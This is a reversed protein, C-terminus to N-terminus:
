EAFTDDPDCAWNLRSELEAIINNMAEAVASSTPPDFMMRVKMYIYTKVGEIDGRDSFDAWTATKDSITFPIKPGVGLQYLIMFVTNIGIVIDTDFATYEETIGLQKKISTLISEESM